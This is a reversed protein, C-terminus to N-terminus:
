PIDVGLAPRAPGARSAPLRSPRRRVASSRILVLLLLWGHVGVERMEGSAYASGDDRYMADFSGCYVCLRKISNM